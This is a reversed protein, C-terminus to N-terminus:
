LPMIGMNESRCLSYFTGFFKSWKHYCSSTLFWTTNKLLILLLTIIVLLILSFWLLSQRLIELLSTQTCESAEMFQRIEERMAKAEECGLQVENNARRHETVLANQFESAQINFHVQADISQKLLTTLEALGEEHHCKASHHANSPIGSYSDSWSADSGKSNPGPNEKDSDSAEPEGQARKAKCAHRLWIANWLTSGQKTKADNVQSVLDTINNQTICLSVEKIHEQEEEHIQEVHKQMAAVADLWGSILMFKQPYCELEPGLTTHSFTSLSTDSQSWIETM